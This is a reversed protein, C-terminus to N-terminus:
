PKVNYIRKAVVATVPNPRSFHFRRNVQRRDVIGKTLISNPVRKIRLEFM